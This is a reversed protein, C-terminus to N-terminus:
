TDEQEMHARHRHYLRERGHHQPGYRRSNRWRHRRRARLAVISPERAIAARRRNRLRRRHRGPGQPADLRSRKRGRYRHPVLGTNGMRGGPEASFTGADVESWVHQGFIADVGDLAGAAIMDRAGISIEEAPQFILRVEGHLQDRMDMLIHAAGLQMAMHCDHGCAHMVGDNQSAFPLDTKETVPLADMDCRLAVRKAPNGQSDYADPAEGRITAIIGTGIFEDREERKDEPHPGTIREYPIGLEDLYACIYDSTAHEQASLEPHQHFHRRLAIINDAYREGLERTVQATDATDSM